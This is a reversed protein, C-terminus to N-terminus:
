KTVTGKNKSLELSVAWKGAGVGAWINTLNNSSFVFIHM